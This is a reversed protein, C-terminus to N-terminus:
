RAPRRNHTCREDEDAFSEGSSGAYRGERFASEEITRLRGSSLDVTFYAGNSSIVLTGDKLWSAHDPVVRTPVPVIHVVNGDVTAIMLRWKESGSISDLFAFRGSDPAWAYTKPFTHRATDDAPPYVERGNVVVHHTELVYHAEWAPVFYPPIGSNVIYRGDPSVSFEAGLPGANTTGTEIDLEYYFSSRPSLHGDFWLRRDNRWGLRMIANLPLDDSLDLIKIVKGSRTCVVLSPLLHGGSRVQHAYVIQSHAPSFRPLAVGLPDHLLEHGKSADHTLWLSRGDSYLRECVLSTSPLGFGNSVTLLVTAFAVTLRM